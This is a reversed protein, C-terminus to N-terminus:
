SASSVGAVAAVRRLLERRYNAPGGNQNTELLPQLAIQIVGERQFGPHFARLKELSGILLGAGQLMVVSLAVQAVVLGSGLLGTSRGLTRDNRRLVNAAEERSLQWIPALGILVATLLAAMAAFALVRWDPRLDLSVPIVRGSTSVALLIRSGWYALALAAATGIASLTLAEALLQRAIQATSAGLAFRVSIERERGTARALSLSSLNVCVLLLIFGVIGM